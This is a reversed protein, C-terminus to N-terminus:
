KTKSYINTYFTHASESNLENPLATYAFKADKKNKHYGCNSIQKKM